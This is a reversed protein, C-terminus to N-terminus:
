HIMFRINCVRKVYNDVCLRCKACAGKDKTSKVKGSTEPCVVFKVDKLGPDTDGMWALALGPVLEKNTDYIEKADAVNNPDCSLFLSLNDLGILPQIFNAGPRFSRTYVWFRVQPFEAIVIAWAEAYALSMFDGAWHIRFFLKGQNKRVFISVTRKIVNYCEDANKNVFFETNYLLTKGVNKYIQTIKEVYCTKRKLGDRTDLCGGKGCTAGACTGGNKPLGHLLGFTNKQSKSFKTKSNSSLKIM